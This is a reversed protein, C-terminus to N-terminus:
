ILVVLMIVGLAVFGLITVATIMIVEDNDVLAATVEKKKNRLFKM